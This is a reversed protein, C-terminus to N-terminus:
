RRKAYIDSSIAAVASPVADRKVPDQLIPLLQLRGPIHVRSAIIPRSRPESRTGIVVGGCDSRDDAVIGHIYPRVERNRWQDLTPHVARTLIIPDDDMRGVSRAGIYM